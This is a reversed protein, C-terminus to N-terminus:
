QIKIANRSYNKHILYFIWHWWLPHFPSLIEEWKNQVWGDGIYDVGEGEVLDDKGPDGVFAM